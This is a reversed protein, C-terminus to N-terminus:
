GVARADPAREFTTAGTAPPIPPHAPPARRCQRYARVSGWVPPFRTGTLGQVPRPHRGEVVERGDGPRLGEPGRIRGVGRPGGSRGTRQRRRAVERRCGARKAEVADAKAQEDPRARGRPAGARQGRGPRIDAVPDGPNGDGVTPKDDVLPTGAADVGAVADAGIEVIYGSEANHAVRMNTPDGDFVMGRYLTHIVPGDGRDVPVIVAASVVQYRKTDAM